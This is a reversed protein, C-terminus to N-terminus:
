ARFYSRTKGVIFANKIRDKEDVEEKLKLACTLIAECDAQVQEDHTM